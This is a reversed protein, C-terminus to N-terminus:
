MKAKARGDKFYARRDFPEVVLKRLRRPELVVEKEKRDDTVFFIHPKPIIASAIAADPLPGLRWCTFKKAIERDLTWSVGRVRTHYCGRYVQVTDPLSDFFTRQEPSFYEYAPVGASRMESLLRSRYAWTDDCRHWIAMLALWFLESSIEPPVLSLLRGLRAESSEAFCSSEIADLMVARDLGRRPYESILQQAKLAREEKEKEWARQREQVERAQSAPLRCKEMRKFLPSYIEVIPDSPEEREKQRRMLERVDNPDSLNCTRDDNAM